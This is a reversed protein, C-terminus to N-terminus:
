ETPKSDGQVKPLLVHTVWGSHPAIRLAAEYERRAGERDGKKALAQGLWAHADFRGWNPWPRDAPETAFLAIARRLEVEAKDLGGGWMSPTHFHSIGQQLAVRPNQPALELAEGMHNGARPGLTMGRMPSLGIQAGYISALLAQSEAWRPQIRVAELLHDLAEEYLTERERRETKPMFSLRWSAYAFAYHVLARRAPPASAVWSELRARAARIRDADGDLVSQELAAVFPPWDREFSGAAAEAAQPPPASAPPAAATTALAVVAVITLSLFRM